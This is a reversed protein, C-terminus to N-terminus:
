HMAFLRFEAKRDHDGVEEKCGRTEEGPTLGSIRLIGPFYGYDDSKTEDVEANLESCSANNRIDDIAMSFFGTFGESSHVENLIHKSEAQCVVQVIPDGSLTHSIHEKRNSAQRDPHRQKSDRHIDIPLPRPTPNISVVNSPIRSQIAIHKVPTSASLYVCSPTTM